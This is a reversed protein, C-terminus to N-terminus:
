AAEEDIPDLFLSIIEGNPTKYVREVVEGENIIVKTNRSGIPLTKVSPVLAQKLDPYKDLNKFDKIKKKAVM